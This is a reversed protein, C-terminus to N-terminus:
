RQRKTNARTRPRARTTAIPYLIETPKLAASLKALSRAANATAVIVAEPNGIAGGFDPTAARTLLVQFGDPNGGATTYLASLKARVQMDRTLQQVLQDWAAPSKLKQTRVLLAAAPQTRRAITRALTPLKACLYKFHRSQMDVFRQKGAARAGTIRSDTALIAEVHALVDFIARSFDELPNRSKAPPLQIPSPQLAIKYRPDPIPPDGAVIGSLQAALELGAAVGAWVGAAFEGFIPVSLGAAAVALCVVAGYELSLATGLAVQKQGSVDVEVMAPSTTLFAPYGNQYQDVIDLRAQYNYNENVYGTPDPIFVGPIFWQWKKTLDLQGFTVAVTQNIAIPTSIADTAVPQNVGNDVDASSEFLTVSATLSAATPNSLSGAVVYNKKWPVNTQPINWTWWSDDIIPLQVSLTEASSQYPGTDAGTGTLTLTMVHDGVQYLRKAMEDTLTVAFFNSQFLDNRTVSTADAKTLTDQRLIGAPDPNGFQDLLQLVATVTGLDLQRFGQRSTEWRYVIDQGPFIPTGIYLRVVLTGWKMLPSESYNGGRMRFQTPQESPRHAKVM